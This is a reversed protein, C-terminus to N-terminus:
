VMNPIHNCLTVVDFLRDLYFWFSKPISGVNLQFHSYQVIAIGSQQPSFYAHRDNRMQLSCSIQFSNFNNVM